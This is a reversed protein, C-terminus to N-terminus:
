KKINRCFKQITSANRNLTLNRVNNLWRKFSSYLKNGNIKNKKLINKQLVNKIFLKNRAFKKAKYLRFMNQLTTASDNEKNTLVANKQQWKQLYKKLLLEKTNDDKTIFVIKLKENQTNKLTIKKLNNSFKQLSPRELSKKIKNFKAMTLILNTIKKKSTDYFYKKFRQNRIKALKPKMFRQIKQTSMNYTILKTRNNWKRLKSRMQDSDVKSHKNVCKLLIQNIKQLRNKEKCARYVRFANSIKSACNNTYTNYQRWKDFYRKLASKDDTYSKKELLNTLTTKRNTNLIKNNGADKIKSLLHKLQNFRFIKQLKNKALTEQTHKQAIFSRFKNQIIAAGENAQALITKKHWISFPLQLKYLNNKQKKEVLKKLINERKIKNRLLKKKYAVRM